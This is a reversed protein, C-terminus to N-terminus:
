DSVRLMGFPVCMSSFGALNQLLGPGASALGECRQQHAGLISGAARACAYYCGLLGSSM